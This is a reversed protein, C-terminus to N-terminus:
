PECRPPGPSHANITYHNRRGNRERTIYGAADLETVIRHAARDTIGVPEAIDRLALGSDQSICVLM